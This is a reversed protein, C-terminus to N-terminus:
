KMAKLSLNVKTPAVNTAQGKATLLLPLTYTKGASLKSTDKLTVVVTAATGDDSFDVFINETEDVLASQLLGVDGISVSGIEAGVPATLELHYYIERQKSQSQYSNQVKPSVTFKLASQTVRVTQNATPVEIGSDLIGVLKVQYSAKTSVEADEKLRLTVMPQGKANFSPNVLEFLDKDPGELRVDVVEGTVNNLKTLTYTIGGTSRAAADLKGSASGTASYNANTFVKVTFSLPKLLKAIQGPESDQVDMVHSYLNFRYSGPKIDGSSLRATVQNNEVEISIKDAEALKGADTEACEVDCSYVQYDATSTNSTLKTEEQGALVTNLSLTSASLKVTPMTNIVRVTFNVPACEILDETDGSLDRCVAVLKGGYSGTKIMPAQSNVWFSLTNGEQSWATKTIQNFADTGEAARPILYCGVLEVNPDSLSITMSDTRETYLQHVTVTNKSLKVTPKTNVVKVTVTVKALATEGYVPVFSYSYSGNAVTNDTDTIEATIVGNAFTVALKETQANPKVPTLVADEIKAPDLNAQSLTVGTSASRGPYNSNLSLTASVPKVTPLKSNISLSYNLTIPDLWNYSNHLSIVVNGGKSGEAATIKLGEATATVDAIDTSTTTATVNEMDLPAKATNNYVSTLVTANEDLVPNLVGSAPKLALSPKKVSANITVAKEIPHAYGEVELYLTGKANYAADPNDYGVTLKGSGPVYDGGSFTGTGFTAGLIDGTDVGAVQITLTM